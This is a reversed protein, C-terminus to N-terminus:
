TRGARGDYLFDLLAAEAQQAVVTNGLARLAAGRSMHDCVHGEPFGMMWEVLWSSLRGATVPHPAPRGLVREWREVAPAYRGWLSEPSTQEVLMGLPAYNTTRGDYAALRAHYREISGGPENATPTPLLDITTRLNLGGSGHAGVGTSDSATPTPLLNLGDPGQDGGRHNGLAVPGQRRLNYPGTAAPWAAIFVRDRRHPAGIASAPICTWSFDYGLAALNDAVIDFGRIFSPACTRWSSLDHDYFAFPTRSDTGSDSRIGQKLGAHRGAVSIDQCNHVMVGDAIYTEDGSVSLNYVAQPQGSRTIKRVPVWMVGLSAFAQKNPSPSFRINWYPRQKITRGEIQKTPSPVVEHVSAAKGHVARILRAMGQALARSATTGNVTGDKKIDGDADLWGDLLAAQDAMPLGHVMEPLRKGSAGDGFPALLDGWQPITSTRPHRVVWGDGLWRGVLYWRAPNGDDANPEDMPQALFHQRTLDGADVWEPAADRTRAWFPHEATCGISPTGQAKVTVTDDTQRQMTATVARWRQRHTMVMEGVQVREIPTPGTITSVLTGAPFCPFGGCLVDVEVPEVRSWDVTTVDGLNPTEPWHHALVTAAPSDTECHWAVTAGTVVEVASDLGGIGSFLSGYKPTM